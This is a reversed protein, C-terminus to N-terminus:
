FANLSAFPYELPPLRAMSGEALKSSPGLCASWTDAMKTKTWGSPGQTSALASFIHDFRSNSGM